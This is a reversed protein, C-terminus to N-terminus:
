EEKIGCGYELQPQWLPHNELPRAGTEYITVTGLRLVKKCVKGLRSDDGEFQSSYVIHTIGATNFINKLEDASTDPSFIKEVIERRQSIVYYPVGENTEAYTYGEQYCQRSSLASYLNSIGDTRGWEKNVRNTVFLIDKETNENLWKAAAEDDANMVSNYPYKKEIGVNRLLSRLGSGMFNVYMFGQTVFAVCALIAATNKLLKKDKLLHMNDVANLHLFFIRLYLFYAQSLAYHNFLWFAAIGGVIQSNIFLRKGNLKFLRPIEACLGVAFIFVQLPATLFTNAIITLVTGIKWQTLRGACYLEHLTRGFVTREATRTFSFAMSNNAGSSFFVLYVGGFILAVAAAGALGLPSSQKQLFKWVATIVAGVAVIAAVPGKGFTLMFFSAAWLLLAFPKVKFHRDLLRFFMSCFISLYIVATAQSNINTIIHRANDNFFPSYGGGVCTYLAACGFLFMSFTFLISKKKDEFYGSGLEYLCGVVGALIYPGTYFALLNYCSIGSVWSIAGTILETLYHYHLQVGSYRIDEPIFKITFASANGVNWLLDQNILTDGVSSPLGNKGAMTWAYLFLLTFFLLVLLWGDPSLAASKKMKKFEETKIVYIIYAASLVAPLFMLRFVKLKMAFCYVFAFFGTGLLVNLGFKMNEFCSDAKLLRRLACGPLYIFAAVFIPLVVLMEFASGGGYLVLAVYVALVAACYATKLGACGLYLKSVTNKM